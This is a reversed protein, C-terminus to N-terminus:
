RSLEARGVVMHHVEDPGDALRLHRQNVYMESLPSWQSVGTAGHIQMAQDIITCVKEPVMAKVMSVWVRAERNGLVDMARAAKLVMLRMAEIEIRARSVTELNKGLAILNKGFAQRTSGRKVMLDLAKEAAGISRMCHHIRGPGLRVQSIEFGRGEGLLINEKPVRVNEFKIHMHGRPAHDHGFVCMPGLIKVGPTDIPVLIQSQQFQPSADPSTKVMTIMIKCRPDGAGSIYYKEGNIVWEDSVLKATTSINKADSSAVNPETMVYASRIEGALLPKLWKEKQEKTGVRELVEMNGTDPAACNMSESALPNKALEVAIYAYDLNKLGQGTEDDPLFFNWLGEEKAKDKAKQLVALQEPTFSWRDTKKEGLKAFEVSMPDVTERIFKKVHEYLPRVEDSMRLDNLEEGPNLNYTTTRPIYAHKM